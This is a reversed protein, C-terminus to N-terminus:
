KVKSLSFPFLLVLLHKLHMMKQWNVGKLSLKVGTLNDKPKVGTLLCAGHLGESEGEGVPHPLSDFHSFEHVSIFVTWYIFCVLLAGGSLQPPPARSSGKTSHLPQEAVAFGDRLEWCLDLVCGWLLQWGLWFCCLYLFDDNYYICTQLIM